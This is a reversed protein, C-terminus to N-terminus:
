YFEVVTGTAEAKAKWGVVYFLVKNQVHTNIIAQSGTLQANKIMDSIASERLSKKSMGGIGLVYNQKSTGSVQKVIRYNKQALVVQTQNENVNGTGLSHLSCSSLTLALIACAAFISKKMTTNEYMPELHTMSTYLESLYIFVHLWVIAREVNQLSECQGLRDSVLLASLGVGICLYERKETCRIYTCFPYLVGSPVDGNSQKQCIKPIQSIRLVDFCLTYNRRKYTQVLGDIGEGLIKQCISQCQM